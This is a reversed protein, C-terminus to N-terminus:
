VELQLHTSQVREGWDCLKRHEQSECSQRSEAVRIIRNLHNTIFIRTPRILSLAMRSYVARGDAMKADILADRASKQQRLASFM